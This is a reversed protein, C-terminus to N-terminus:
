CKGVIKLKADAAAVKELHAKMFKESFVSGGLKAMLIDLDRTGEVAKVMAKMSKPDANEYMKRQVRLLGECHERFIGVVKVANKKGPMNKRKRRPELRKILDL